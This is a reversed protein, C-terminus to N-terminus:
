TTTNTRKIREYRISLPIVHARFKPTIKPIMAMSEEDKDWAWRCARECSPEEGLIVSRSISM